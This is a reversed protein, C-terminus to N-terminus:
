RTPPKSTVYLLAGKSVADMNLLATFKLVINANGKKHWSKMDDLKCPPLAEFEMTEYTLESSVQGPTEKVHTQEVPRTSLIWFPNLAVAKESTGSIKQPLPKARLRWVVKTPEKNPESRVEMYLPVSLGKTDPNDITGFPLLLLTKPKMGKKAYVHLEEGHRSIHLEEHACSRGVYAQYLTAKTLSLLMEDNDWSSCPAWKISECDLSSPQADHTSASAPKQALLTVETIPVTEVIGVSSRSGNWTVQV